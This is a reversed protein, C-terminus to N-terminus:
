PAPTDGTGALIKEVNRIREEMEDKMAEREEELYRVANILDWVMDGNSATLLSDPDDPSMMGVSSPFPVQLEQAIVGRVGTALPDTTERNWIHEYMDYDCVRVQKILAMSAKPDVTVINEKLRADSPAVFKPISALKVQMNGVTSGASNSFTQVAEYVAATGITAQDFPTIGSVSATPRILIKGLINIGFADTTLRKYEVDNNATAWLEARAGGNTTTGDIGGSVARVPYRRPSGAAHTDTAGLSVGKATTNDYSSILINQASSQIYQDAGQNLEVTNGLNVTNNFTNSAGSWTNALPLLDTGSPGEPGQINGLLFWQNLACAYTDGNSSDLYQDGSRHATGDYVPPGSGQLWSSGPSGTLGDEGDIGDLGQLGAQGQAGQAGVLSVGAPWVGGDKPGFITDTADNFYHDGDKGISGTPDEYGSLLSSGAKGEPGAMGVQGQLGDVGHIGPIGDKGNAGNAGNAGMPGRVTSDAGKPGTAGMYEKAAITADMITITSEGNRKFAVMDELAINISEKEAKKLKKIKEDLQLAEKELKESETGSYGVKGTNEKIGHIHSHRELAKLAKDRATSM